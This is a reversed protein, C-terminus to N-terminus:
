EDFLLFLFDYGRHMIMMPLIKDKEKPDYSRSKHFFLHFFCLFVFLVVSFYRETAKMQITAVLPKVVSEFTLVVKYLMIFLVVSFYRETAKTQITVVLPKM